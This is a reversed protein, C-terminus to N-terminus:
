SVPGRLISPQRLTLNFIGRATISVEFSILFYQGSEGHWEAGDDSFGNMGPTPTGAPPASLRKWDTGIFQKDASLEGTVPAHIDPPNAGIWKYPTPTGIHAGEEIFIQTITNNLHWGTVVTKFEVLVYFKEGFNYDGPIEYDILDPQTTNYSVTLTATAVIHDWVGSSAKLVSGAFGLVFRGQKEEGIQVVLEYATNEGVLYFDEIGAIGDGPDSTPNSFQCITKSPVIINSGFTLPVAIVGNERYEVTGFTVNVM